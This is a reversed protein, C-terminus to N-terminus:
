DDSRDITVKKVAYKKSEKQASKKDKYILNRSNRNIYLAQKSSDTRAIVIYDLELTRIKGEIIENVGLDPMVRLYYIIDGIKYHERFDFEDM